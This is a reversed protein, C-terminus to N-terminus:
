QIQVREMTTATRLLLRRAELPRAVTCGSRCSRTPPFQLRHAKSHRHRATKKRLSTSGTMSDCSCARSAATSSRLWFIVALAVAYSLAAFSSVPSFMGIRASCHKYLTQAALRSEPGFRHVSVLQMTVGPQAASLMQPATQAHRDSTRATRGTM